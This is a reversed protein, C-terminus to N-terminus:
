DNGFISGPSAPSVPVEPAEPLTSPYSPNFTPAVLPTSDLIPAGARSHRAGGVGHGAHGAAMANSAGLMSAGLMVAVGVISGRRLKQKLQQLLRM